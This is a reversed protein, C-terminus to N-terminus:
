QAITEKQVIIAAKDTRYDKMGDKNISKVNEEFRGHQSRVDKCESRGNVSELTMVMSIREEERRRQVAM